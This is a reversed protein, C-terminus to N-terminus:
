EDSCCEHLVEHRYNTGDSKKVELAFRILWYNMEELTIEELKPVFLFRSYEPEFDRFEINRAESQKNYCNSSWQRKTNKPVISKRTNQFDREEVFTFCQDSMM